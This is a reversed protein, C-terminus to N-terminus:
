ALVAVGSDGLEIVLWDHIRQVATLRWAGGDAEFLGVNPMHGTKQVRLVFVSSPQPSVERFTRFPTLTVPNPVAADQKLAVGARATVTQTVGDDESTRVDEQKINGLLKLVAARQEDPVFRTQLGVIFDEHSSYKGVFADALNDVKAQVFCERQRFAGAIPGCLRVIQPSVVHVVCKSLDLDDRNAKVYDRLAGLSYVDLAAAAADAKPSWGAPAYLFGGIEMPRALQETLKQVFTGDM